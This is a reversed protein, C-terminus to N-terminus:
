WLPVRVQVSSYRTYRPRTAGNDLLGEEFRLIGELKDLCYIEFTMSPWIAEYGPVGRITAFRERMTEETQGLSERMTAGKLILCELLYVYLIRCDRLLEEQQMEVAVSRVCCEGNASVPAVGLSAVAPLKSLALSGRLIRVKRSNELEHPTLCGPIDVIPLQLVRLAEM